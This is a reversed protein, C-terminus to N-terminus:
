PVWVGRDGWSQVLSTSVPDLSFYNSKRLKKIVGFHHDMSTSNPGTGWSPKAEFPLFCFNYHRWLISVGEERVYASAVRPEWPLSNWQWWLGLSRRDQQEGTKWHTNRLLSTSTFEDKSRPGSPQNTPNGQNRHQFYERFPGNWVVLPKIVLECLERINLMRREQAWSGARAYAQKKRMTWFPQMTWFPGSMLVANCGTSHLFDFPFCVEEKKLIDELLQACGKQKFGMPCFKIM